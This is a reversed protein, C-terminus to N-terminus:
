CSPHVRFSTDRESRPVSLVFYSYEPTDWELHLTSECATCYDEFYVGSYRGLACRSTDRGSEYCNYAVIYYLVDPRRAVRETDRWEKLVLYAEYELRSYGESWGAEAAYERYREKIYLEYSVREDERREDELAQTIEDRVARRERRHAQSKIDRASKDRCEVLSHKVGSYSLLAM